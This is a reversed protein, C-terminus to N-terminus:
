LSKLELLRAIFMMEQERDITPLFFHGQKIRTGTQSNPVTLREVPWKGRLEFLGTGTIPVVDRSSVPNAVRLQGVQDPTGMFKMSKTATDKDVPKEKGALVAGNEGIVIQTSEVPITVEPVLTLTRMGLTMGLRGDPLVEFRGSRAYVREGNEDELAFFGAGAVVLDLPFGSVHSATRNFDLYVDARPLSGDTQVIYPVQPVYGPTHAMMLNRKHVAIAENIAQDFDTAENVTVEPAQNDPGLMNAKDTTIDPLPTGLLKRMQLIGAIDEKNVDKLSQYWVERQEKSLHPLEAEIIGRIAAENNDGPLPAATSVPLPQPEPVAAPETEAPETIETLRSSAVISHDEDTHIALATSLPGEEPWELDDSHEIDFSSIDEDPWDDSLNVLSGSHSSAFRSLEPTGADSTRGTGWTFHSILLGIGIGLVVGSVFHARQSSM